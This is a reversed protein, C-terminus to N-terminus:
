LFFYMKLQMSKAFIVDAFLRLFIKKAGSRGRQSSCAQVEHHMGKRRQGGQKVKLSHGKAQAISEIGSDLQDM